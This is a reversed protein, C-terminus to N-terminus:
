AEFQHDRPAINHWERTETCLACPQLHEDIYAQKEAEIFDPFFEDLYARMEEATRM